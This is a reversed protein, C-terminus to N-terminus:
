AGDEPPPDKRWPPGGTREYIDAVKNRLDSTFAAIGEDLAEQSTAAMAVVQALSRMAVTAKIKACDLDWPESTDKDDSAGSM